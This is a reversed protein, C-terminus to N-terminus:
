EGITQRVVNYHHSLYRVAMDAGVPNMSHVRIQGVLLPKMSSAWLHLMNIVPKIDDDNGLDHDLWLERIPDAGAIWQNIWIRTLTDIADRSSRVTVQPKGITITREDDVLINM